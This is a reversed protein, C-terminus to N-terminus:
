ASQDREFNIVMVRLANCWDGCQEVLKEVIVSGGCMLWKRM